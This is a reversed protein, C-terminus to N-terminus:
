SLIRLCGIGEGYDSTYRVVLGVQPLFNLPKDALPPLINAGPSSDGDLSHRSKDQVLDQGHQYAVHASPYQGDYHLLSLVGVTCATAALFALALARIM